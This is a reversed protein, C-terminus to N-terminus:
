TCLASYWSSPSGSADDILPLPLGRRVACGHRPISSILQSPSTRNPEFAGKGLYRKLDAEPVQVRQGQLHICAHRHAVGLGTLSLLTGFSFMNPTVGVEVDRM